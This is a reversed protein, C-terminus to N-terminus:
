RLVRIQFGLTSSFLIGAFNLVPDAFNFLCDSLLGMEVFGSVLLPLMIACDTSSRVPSCIASVARLVDRAADATASANSSPMVAALRACFLAAICGFLKKIVCFLRRCRCGTSVTTTVNAIPIATPINIPQIAFRLYSRVCFCYRLSPTWHAPGRKAPHRSTECQWMAGANGRLFLKRYRRLCRLRLRKARGNVGFLDLRVIAEEWVYDHWLRARDCRVDKRM